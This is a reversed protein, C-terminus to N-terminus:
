PSSSARDLYEQWIFRRKIKRRIDKIVFRSSVQGKYFGMDHLMAEEHQLSPTNISQFIGPVRNGRSVANPHSWVTRLPERRDTLRRRTIEIIFIHITRNEWLPSAIARSVRTNRIHVAFDEVEFRRAPKGMSLAAQFVWSM